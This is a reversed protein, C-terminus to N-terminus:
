ASQASSPGADCFWCAVLKCFSHQVLKAGHGGTGFSMHVAIRSLSNARMNGRYWWAIGVTIQAHGSDLTMAFTSCGAPQVLVKGVIRDYKDRKEWDVRVDKNFVLRSLNEKSRQGIQQLCQVM